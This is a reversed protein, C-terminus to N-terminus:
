SFVSALVATLAATTAGEIVPFAGAKVQSVTAAAAVTVLQIALGLDTLRLLSETHNLLAIASSLGFTTYIAADPVKAANVSTLASLASYKEGLGYLYRTSVLFVVFTTLVMFLVAVGSFIERTYGGLFVQFIEGIPNDYSTLSGIDVWCIYALVVGLLLLISIINSLYFSTPIDSPKRTEEAFKMLADFGSIIFFFYFFSSLLTGGKVRFVSPYGNLAIGGFGLVSAGTLILILLQSFGNLLSKNIDIGQLAFGSMGAIISVTLAIQNLWSASPLIIHSCFVLITSISFLNYILIGIATIVSIGQGFQEQVLDSEATNSPHAEFAEAYIKSAGLFVSAAALLTIPWADGAQVVAHGLLNFGGSALISLIGVLVLDKLTMSKKLGQEGTM